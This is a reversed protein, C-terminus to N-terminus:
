DREDGMEKWRKVFIALAAQLKSLHNEDLLIDVLLEKDDTIYLNLKGKFHQEISITYGQIKTEFYGDDTYKDFKLGPFITM